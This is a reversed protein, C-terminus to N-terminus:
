TQCRPEESKRLLADCPGTLAGLDTVACVLFRHRVDDVATHVFSLRGPCVASLKEKLSLVSVNAYNTKVNDTIFRLSFINSASM